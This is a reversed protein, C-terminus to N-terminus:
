EYIHEASLILDIPVQYELADASGLNISLYPSSLYVQQMQRPSIGNLIGALTDAVFPAQEKADSATVMMLAGQQVFYEGNQVLVPIKHQYFPQLMEEINNEDKLIDTGLLFADIHSDLILTQFTNKLSEYYQKESEAGKDTLQDIKVETIHFGLTKAVDRYAGMSAVSEDYYVMGINQFEFNKHYFELQKYYVNNNIHCWLNDQGSDEASKAIGSAVPDVSFYVMIPIDEIGMEKVFTGPWTGMCFILDIQQNELKQELSKRCETEGDIALYYTTDDSFQLYGATDNVSLYHLLEKADTDLPSFPLSEEIEIWGKEILELIFFYLMEGSPAYPDIDIYAIQFPTGDEKATPSYTLQSRQKLIADAKIYDDSTLGSSKSCGNLCFLMSFVLAMIVNIKRICGSQLRM